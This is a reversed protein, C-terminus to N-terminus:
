GLFNVDAGSLTFFLMKFVVKLSINAMLFTEEFFRVRNAKDTVSFVAVVIGFINLITGDIKQIRIDIPRILLGLEKAFIPHIANVESGLNFLVSMPVSKKQLHHPVPYM